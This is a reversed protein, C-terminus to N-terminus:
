SAGKASIAAAVFGAIDPSNEDPSEDAWFQVVDLNRPGWPDNDIVDAAVQQAYAEERSDQLVDMAFPGGVPQRSDIDFIYTHLQRYVTM